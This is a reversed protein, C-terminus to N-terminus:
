FPWILRLDGGRWTKTDPVIKKLAGYALFTKFNTIEHNVEIKTFNRAGIIKSHELVRSVGREKSWNARPDERSTKPM